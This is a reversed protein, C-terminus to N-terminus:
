ATDKDNMAQVIMSPNKIKGRMMRPRIWVGTQTHLWVNHNYLIKSRPHKNRLYTKVPKIITTTKKPSNYPGIM